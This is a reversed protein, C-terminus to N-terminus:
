WRIGGAIRLPRSAPDPVWEGHGDVFILNEGAAKTGDPTLHNIRYLYFTTPTFTGVYWLDDPGGVATEILYPTKAPNNCISAKPTPYWDPDVRWNNRTNYGYYDGMTANGSFVTGYLGQGGHGGFYMYTSFGATSFAPTIKRRQSPCWYLKAWMSREQPFEPLHPIADSDIFPAQRTPVASNFGDQGPWIRYSPFWGDHNASYAYCNQSTQRLNNMCTVQRGKELGGKLAPMLLAALLSVIAIVVLLEVLTFAAPPQRHGTNM